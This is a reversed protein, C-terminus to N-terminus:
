RLFVEGYECDPHAAQQCTVRIAKLRETGLGRISLLQQDTSADFEAPTRIGRRWLDDVTVTMLGRITAAFRPFFRDLVVDRGGLLEVISVIRPLMLENSGRTVIWRDETIVASLACRKKDPRGEDEVIRRVAKLFELFQGGDAPVYGIESAAEGFLTKQGPLLEIWIGEWEAAAHKPRRGSKCIEGHHALVRLPTRLQLTACFISAM